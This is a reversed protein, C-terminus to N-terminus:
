LLSKKEKETLKSSIIIPCSENGKLYAYKLHPPLEKLEPKKEDIENASASYLHENQARESGRTEQTKPYVTDVQTIRRIPEESDGYNELNSQNVCKELNNVLFSDMQDDELLEQAELHITEDLDDIGYCDDDEAPLRKISQDIDFTVEDDGVRLTIKKNFVDIMARATALFPRGLIIPIRDALELSMRTPKPEGLGLKEYMTYPMLSISAGLDALAIDIHLNGIDCPITFSGLDKEKSPLKNLLVTYKTNSARKTSNNREKFLLENTTRFERIFAEMEEHERKGEEIFKNVMEEM